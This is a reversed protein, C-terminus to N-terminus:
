WTARLTLKYWGSRRMSATHMQGLTDNSASDMRRINLVTGINFM